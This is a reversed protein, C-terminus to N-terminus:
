RAERELLALYRGRRWEPISLIDAETWHYRSALRHVTEVLALQRQRLRALALGALDVEHEAFQGCDPCAALLAGRVLPDARDLTAEVRALEAATLEPP